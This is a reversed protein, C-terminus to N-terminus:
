VLVKIAAQARDYEELHESRCISCGLPFASKAAIHGPPPHPIGLPCNKGKCDKPVKVRADHCADCYWQNGGCNFLAVSCCYMCKWDIAEAGHGRTCINKGISTKKILCPRCILDERRTTDEMRMEQECDILGGYYPKSCTSCEYFCVKAEAYEM